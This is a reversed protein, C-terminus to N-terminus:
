CSKGSLGAMVTTSITNSRCTRASFWRAFDKPHLLVPMRDHIPKMVENPGTTLICFTRLISGDPGRWAKWLGAIALPEGSQLSIYYPLKGKDTTAWEYFGSAPVICRRKKFADRFSPKEAVTESRAIILKNGISSDSAWRPILGWHLLDVVRGGDPSQRIVPVSAMPAINYNDDYEALLQADFYAQYRSQPGYLVYRGCM